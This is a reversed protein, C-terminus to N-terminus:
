DDQKGGYGKKEKTKEMAALLPDQVGRRRAAREQIVRIYDALAREANAMSAPQHIVTTLHGMEEATCSEALAALSLTRGARRAELLQGYVRGLLPSSFDERDLGACRDALSADLLLLRVVGEEAMASRMDDYRITRGKPQRLAGVSLAEKQLERREQGRRKGRARKVELLM